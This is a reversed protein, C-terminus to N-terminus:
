RMQMSFNHAALVKQSAKTQMSFILSMACVPQVYYVIQQAHKQALYLHHKKVISPPFRQDKSFDKSFFREHFPPFHEDILKLIQQFTNHGNEKTANPECGLHGKSKLAM